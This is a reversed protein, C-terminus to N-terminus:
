PTRTSNPVQVHGVRAALDPGGDGAVQAERVFRRRRKVGIPRARSPACMLRSVPIAMAAANRASAAGAAAWGSVTSVNLTQYPPPCTSNSRIPLAMLAAPASTTPMWSGSPFRLRIASTAPM